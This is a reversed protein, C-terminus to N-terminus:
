FQERLRRILREDGRRDKRIARLDKRMYEMIGNRRVVRVNCYVRGKFTLWGARRLYRQFHKSIFATDIRINSRHRIEVWWHLHLRSANESVIAHDFSILESRHPRGDRDSIGGQSNRIRLWVPCGREHDRIMLKLAQRAYAKFYYENMTVKKNTNITVFFVSTKM